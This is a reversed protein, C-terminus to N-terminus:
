PCFHASSEPVDPYSKSDRMCGIGFNKCLQPAGGAWFNEKEEKQAVNESSWVPRYSVCYGLGLFSDAQKQSQFSPVLVM